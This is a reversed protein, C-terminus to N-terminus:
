RCAQKLDLFSKRWSASLADVALVREIGECDTRQHYYISNAFAVTVLNNDKEKLQLQDGKKVRGTRVVRFYFGTFGSDRVLTIMNDTGFRASLTGCPQRPQSVQLLASGAEYIDGICVDKEHLGSVTLNEGFAAGPLTIRLLKGWYPYHDLSYVCVAKDRGGHHRLDGVGDGEFGSASLSLPSATATKCIGTSMERRYFIEKKPLGINLSEIIMM